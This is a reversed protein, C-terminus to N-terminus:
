NQSQVSQPTNNQSILNHNADYYRVAMLTLSVVQNSAFCVGSNQLSVTPDYTNLNPLATPLYLHLGDGTGGFSGWTQSQGNMVRFSLRGSSLTMRLTWSVTEGSTQMMDHKNSNAYAIPDNPDWTHLQLGGADYDPQTHYNIDFACYATGMNAPSITCTVQPGNNITDPENVVLQWDEEVRYVDGGVTQARLSSASLIGTVLMMALIPLWSRRYVRVTSCIAKMTVERHFAGLSLPARTTPKDASHLYASASARKSGQHLVLLQFSLDGVM